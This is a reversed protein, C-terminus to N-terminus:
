NWVVLVFLSHLAHGLMVAVVQVNNATGFCVIKISAIIVVVLIHDKLAHLFTRVVM